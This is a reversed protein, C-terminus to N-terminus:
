VRISHIFAENWWWLGTAEDKNVSLVIALHICTAVYDHRESTNTLWNCSSNASVCTTTESEHEIEFSSIGTQRQTDLKSIQVPLEVLSLTLELLRECIQNRACPSSTLFRSESTYAAVLLLSVLLAPSCDLSKGPRTRPFTPFTCNPYHSTHEQMFSLSAKSFYHQLLHCILRHPIITVVAPLIPVAAIHELIADDIPSFTEECYSAFYDHTPGGSSSDTTPCSPKDYNGLSDIGSLFDTAQKPKPSSPMWTTGCTDEISGLEETLAHLVSEICRQDWNQGDNRNTGLCPSTPDDDCSTRLREWGSLSSTSTLCDLPSLETWRSAFAQPTNIPAESSGFKGESKWISDHNAPMECNAKPGEIWGKESPNPQPSLRCLPSVENLVQQEVDLTPIESDEQRGEGATQVETPVLCDDRDSLVIESAIDTIDTGDHTSGRRTKGRKRRIRLNSCTAGFRCCTACPTGSNCKIRKQFCRDCPRTSTSRERESNSPKRCVEKSHDEIEKRTDAVTHSVIPLHQECLMSTSPQLSAQCTSRSESNTAQPPSPLGHGKLSVTQTEERSLGEKIWLPCRSQQCESNGVEDSPQSHM